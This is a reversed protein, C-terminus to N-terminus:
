KTLTFSDTGASPLGTVQYGNTWDANVLSATTSTSLPSWVFNGLGTAYVAMLGALTGAADYASDGIIKTSVTGASGTTGAVQAVDAVVKFYVTQGASITLISSLIADNNGNSVLGTVTAVVQGATFSGGVTTSFGSDTYGYVKLNTVTTTGNATSASSTAVNIVLKKLALDNKANATISFRYLDVGSQAILTSTMGSTQKAVTPSTKFVRVGSVATSGSPNVVAGSGVGTGSTNKNGADGNVDVDVTLLAGPHSAASTGQAALDGKVTIVVSGDKPVLVPTSLTSTAQRNSGVFEATGVQTSGNWLTVQTLDAASSSATISGMSLGIRTLNVSDNTATFRYAGLTVGTTGATAITYAPSSSDLAVVLSGTGISQAL